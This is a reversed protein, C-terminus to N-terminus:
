PQEEPQTTAQSRRQARRYRAAVRRMELAALNRNRAEIKEPAEVRCVDKFSVTLMEPMLCFWEGYIRQKAFYYHLYSEALEPMLRIIRLTEYHNAQLEKLRLDPDRKTWGIKVYPLTGAQVFYTPM